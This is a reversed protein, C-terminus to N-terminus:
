VVFTVNTGDPFQDCRINELNCALAELPDSTSQFIGWTGLMWESSFTFKFSLQKWDSCCTLNWLRSGRDESMFMRLKRNSWTSSSGNKQRRTPRSLFVSGWEEGSHYIGSLSIVPLWCTIFIQDPTDRLEREDNRDCDLLKQGVISSIWFRLHSVVNISHSNM